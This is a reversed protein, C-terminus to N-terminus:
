VAEEHLPSRQRKGRGRREKMAELPGLELALDLIRRIRPRNMQLMVELRSIRLGRSYAIMVKAKARRAKSEGASFAIAELERMAAPEIALPGRSSHRGM